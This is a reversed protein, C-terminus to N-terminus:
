SIVCKPDIYIYNTATANYYSVKATIRVKSAVAPNLTVELYQSWDDHGTRVSITEDSLIKGSHYEDEDDYVDVYEAELWLQSAALAVLSQVYFRFTRSGTPMEFEGLPIDHVFDTLASVGTTTNCLIKILKAAGGARQDPNPDIGDTVFSETTLANLYFTKHKGLVKGYNEFRIPNKARMGSTSYEVYGNTGGLRVDRGLLNSGSYMMLDLSDNAINYGVSVNELYGDIWRIGSGGMNYIACDIFWFVGAYIGHQGSGTSNGEITCARLIILNTGSGRVVYANSDQALLCNRFYVCVNDGSTYIVGNADISDKIEMNKFVHWPDGSLLLQYAASNFDICPVDDPDDAWRNAGAGTLKITWTSDDIAAFEDYDEDEEIYALASNSATTSPYPRDIQIQSSSVVREIFYRKGDPGIIYRAQHRTRVMDNDDITILDSGNTWDSSAINHQARPAGIFYLPAAATGDYNPTIDAPGAPIEITREDDDSHARRWWTKDAATVGGSEKAHKVTQWALDTTTGNNANNGNEPDVFRNAM